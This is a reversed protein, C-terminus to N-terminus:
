IIWIHLLYNRVYRPTIVLPIIIKIFLYLLWLYLNQILKWRQHMEWDGMVSKYHLICVETYSDDCTKKIVVRKRRRINWYMIMRWNSWKGKSVESKQHYRTKITRVLEKNEKAAKREFPKRIFYQYYHIFAEEKFVDYKRIPLSPVSAINFLSTSRNWKTKSRQLPSSKPEVTVDPQLGVHSPPSLQNM